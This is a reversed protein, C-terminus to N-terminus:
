GVQINKLCLSTLTFPNYKICFGNSKTIVLQFKLNGEQTLISRKVPFEYTEDVKELEITGKEGNRILIIEAFGDIFGDTFRFVLKNADNEEEYGLFNNEPICLRGETTLEVFQM